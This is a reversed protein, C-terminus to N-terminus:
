NRQFKHGQQLVVNQIGQRYISWHVFPVEPITLCDDSFNQIAFESEPLYFSQEGGAGKANIDKETDIRVVSPGVREVAKVIVNEGPQM